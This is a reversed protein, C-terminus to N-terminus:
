WHQKFPDPKHTSNMTQASGFIQTSIVMGDASKATAVGVYTWSDRMNRAHHKSSALLELLRGSSHNSSAVVNEGISEIKLSTRAIHARKQFGDHNINTGKGGGTQVLFNCHQQALQDLGSHRELAQKRHNSRYRNVEQFVQNSLSGSVAKGSSVPVRLKDPPSSACSVLGSFLAAALFSRYPTKKMLSVALNTSTVLIYLLDM